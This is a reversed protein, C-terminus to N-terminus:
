EDRAERIFTTQADCSMTLGRYATMCEKEPGDFLDLHTLHINPDVLAMLTEKIWKCSKHVSLKASATIILTFSYKIFIKKINRKKDYTKNM